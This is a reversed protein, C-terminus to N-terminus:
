TRGEKVDALVSKHRQIENGIQLGLELTNIAEQWNVPPEARRGHIYAIFDKILAAHPDHGSLITRSTSASFLRDRLLKHLPPRSRVLGAISLPDIAMDSDVYLYKKSGYVVIFNYNDANASLKISVYGRGGELVIELEDAPLWPWRDHTRKMGLHVFRMPGMFQYAKYIPHAILEEWRGGPLTHCWSSPDVALRDQGGDIMRVAHIQRIEGIAKEKVLKLAQQLGYQYKANHVASFKGGTRDIIDRIRGAEDLTQFIPKEMLVHCGHELALRCLRFHSSPPSCVSVIDAPQTDLAEDLSSCVYPVGKQGAVSRAKDLDPDCLAMVEVGPVQRYANLHLEGGAM